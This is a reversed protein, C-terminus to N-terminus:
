TLLATSKLETGVMACGIVAGGLVLTFQTQPNSQNEATFSLL